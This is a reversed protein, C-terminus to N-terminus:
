EVILGWVEYLKESLMPSVRLRTIMKGFIDSLMNKKASVGRQKSYADILLKPTPYHKQILIARDLTMGKTAMLMRIYIDRVTLMGSKSLATQFTEFDIGLEKTKTGSLWGDENRLKIRKRARRIALEYSRQSTLQPSTVYIDSELYRAEIEKTMQALFNVTDTSHLTRKLFFGDNVLIQSMATSIMQVTGGARDVSISEETLYTVGELASKKLRIKQEHFRGDRISSVLDDLRKREVIHDLVAIARSKEHRAIWMVDGVALSDTSVKIGLKELETQFFNTDNQNRKERNDIIVEIQFSHAPWIDRSYQGDNLDSRVVPPPEPLSSHTFRSALPSTSSTDKSKNTTVSGPTNPSPVFTTEGIRRLEARVRANPTLESALAESLSPPKETVSLSSVPRNPTDYAAKSMSSPRSNQNANINQEIPEDSVIIDDDEDIVISNGSPNNRPISHVDTTNTSNEQTNANGEVQNRLKHLERAVDKGQETIFYRKNRTSSCYVLDKGILTTISGWASYFKGLQSDVVFPANSLPPAAEIINDKTMGEQDGSAESHYFLTLLIAYGGSRYKPVYVRPAKEKPKARKKRKTTPQEQSGQIDEDIVEVTSSNSATGATATVVAVERTGKRPKPQSKNSSLSAFNPTTNQNIVYPNRSINPLTVPAIPDPLRNPKKTNNPMNAFNPTSKANTVYPNRTIDPLEVTINSDHQRKRGRPPQAGSTNNAHSPISSRSGSDDSSIEVLQSPSSDSTSNNSSTIRKATTSPPKPPIPLSNASCYKELKKELAKVIGPGIFRLLLLESPHSFQMPCSALSKHARDYNKSLYSTANATSESLEKLWALYLTNWSEPPESMGVLRPTALLQFCSKFPSQISFALSFVLARFFRRSFVSYVLTYYTYVYLCLDVESFMCLYTHICVFM